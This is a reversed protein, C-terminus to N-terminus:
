HESRHEARGEDRQQGDGDPVRHLRGAPEEEGLRRHAVDDRVEAQDQEPRQDDEEQHDLRLPEVAEPPVETVVEAEPGERVSRARSLLGDMLRPRATRIPTATAHPAVSPPTGGAAALWSITM